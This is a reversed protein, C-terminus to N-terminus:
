TDKAVGLDRDDVVGLQRRLERALATTEFVDNEEASPRPAIHIRVLEGLETNGNVEDLAIAIGGYGFAGNRQHPRRGSTGRLHVARYTGASPQADISHLERAFRQSEDTEAADGGLDRANRETGAHLHDGPIAARPAMPPDFKYREFFHEGSAVDDRQMQQQRVLCFAEHRAFADGRHLWADNEDIGGAAREDILVGHDLRQARAMDAM